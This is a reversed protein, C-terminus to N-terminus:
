ALCPPADAPMAKCANLRDDPPPTPQPPPHGARPQQVLRANDPQPRRRHRPTTPQVRDAARQLPATNSTGDTIRTMSTAIPRAPSSSGQGPSRWQASTGSYGASAARRRQRLLEDGFVAAAPEDRRLPLPVLHAPNLRHHETTRACRQTTPTLGVFNFANYLTSQEMAAPEIYLRRRLQGAAPAEADLQRAPVTSGSAPLM